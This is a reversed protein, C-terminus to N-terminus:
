SNPEISQLDCPGKWKAMNPVFSEDEPPKKPIVLDFYEIILNLVGCAMVL